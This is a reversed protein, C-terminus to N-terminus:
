WGMEQETLVRTVPQESLTVKTAVKQTPPAEKLDELSIQTKREGVGDLRFYQPHQSKFKLDQFTERVKFNTIKPFDVPEKPVEAVPSPKKDLQSLAKWTEENTVTDLTQTLEIKQRELTKITQDFATTIEREKFYDVYHKDTANPVQIDLDQSKTYVNVNLKKLEENLTTECEKIIKKIKEQCDDYTKSMKLIGPMIKKDIEAIEKTIIGIRQLTEPDRNETKDLGLRTSENILDIEKQIEERQEICLKADYNTIEVGSRSVPIMSILKKLADLKTEVIEIKDELEQKEVREPYFAKSVTAVGPAKKALQAATSAASSLSNFFLSTLGTAKGQETPNTQPANGVPQYNSARLIETNSIM